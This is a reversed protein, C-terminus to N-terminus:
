YVVWGCDCMIEYGDDDDHHALCKGTEPSHEIWAHRCHCLLQLTWWEDTINHWHWRALARRRAVDAAKVAFIEADPRGLHTTGRM